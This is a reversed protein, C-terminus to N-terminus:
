DRLKYRKLGLGKAKGEIAFVSRGIMRALVEKDETAWHEKLLKIQYKNWADYGISLASRIGLKNAQKRIANQSRGLEEAIESVKLKGYNDRVFKLDKAAWPKQQYKEAYGGPHVIGLKGAKRMIADRTRQLKEILAVAGVQPYEKKLIAVDNKSWKRSAKRLPEGDFEPVSIRTKKLGLQRAKWVISPISREWNLMSALKKNQYRPFNERLFKEDEATWKKGHSYGM